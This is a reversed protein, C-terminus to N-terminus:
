RGIHEGNECSTNKICEGCYQMKCRECKWFGGNIKYPEERICNGACQCNSCLQTIIKYGCRRDMADSDDNEERTIICQNCVLANCNHCEVLEEHIFHRCNACIFM